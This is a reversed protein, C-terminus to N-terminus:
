AIRPPQAFLKIRVDQAVEDILEPRLRMARLSSAIVSDYTRAFADLAERAGTACAQALYLDAVALESPDGGARLAAVFADEAVVLDPWASRAAALAAQVASEM